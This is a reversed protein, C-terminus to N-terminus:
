VQASADPEVADAGAEAGAEAHPSALALGVAFAAAGLRLNM